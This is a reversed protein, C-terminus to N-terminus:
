NEESEVITFLEEFKYIPKTETQNSLKEVTCVWWSHIILDTRAALFKSKQTKNTKNFFRIYNIIQQEDFGKYYGMLDGWNKILQITDKQNIKEIQEPCLYSFKNDKLISPNNISELVIKKKKELYEKTLDDSSKGLAGTFDFMKEGDVFGLKAGAGFHMDCLEYTDHIQNMTYLKTDFTGTNTRSESGWVFTDKADNCATIFLILSLRIFHKM